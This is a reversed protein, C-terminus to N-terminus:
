LLELLRLQAIESRPPELVKIRFLWELDVKTLDFYERNPWIRRHRFRNHLFHECWDIDSTEIVHLLELSPGTTQHTPIRRQTIKEGKGIKYREYPHFYIYVGSIPFVYKAPISPASKAKSLLIEKWTRLEKSYRELGESIDEVVFRGCDPCYKNNANQVLNCAHCVVFLTYCDHFLLAEMHKFAYPNLKGEGFISSM